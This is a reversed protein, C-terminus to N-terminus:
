DLQVTDTRDVSFHSLLGSIDADFFTGVFTVPGIVTGPHAPMEAWGDIDNRVPSYFEDYHPSDGCFYWGTYAPEAEGNPDYPLTGDEDELPYQNLYCAERVFKKDNYRSTFAILYTGVRGEAV